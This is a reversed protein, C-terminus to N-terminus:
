TMEWMYDIPAVVNAYRAIGEAAKDEPADRLSKKVDIGRAALVTNAPGGGLLFRDAKKRFFRLIGLKDSVKAGGIVMVFPRAPRTMVASLHTVEAELEIGAYSPLFKTIAVVSANARHSVAFADNVYFDGLSGLQGM